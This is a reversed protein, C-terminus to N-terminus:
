HCYASLIFLVLVTLILNWILLGYPFYRHHFEFLHPIEEIESLNTDNPVTVQLLLDSNAISNLENLSFM